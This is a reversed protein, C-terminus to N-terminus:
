KEMFVYTTPSPPHGPQDSDESPACAMETTKDSHLENQEVTKLKLIHSHLILYSSCTGLTACIGEALAM